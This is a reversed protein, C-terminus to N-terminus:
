IVDGLEVGPRVLWLIFGPVCDYEGWLVTCSRGGVTLIYLWRLTSVRCLLVLIASGNSPYVFFICFWPALFPYSFLMIFGKYTLRSLTTISLRVCTVHFRIRVPLSYGVCRLYGLFIIFLSLKYGRCGEMSERTEMYSGGMGCVLVSCAGFITHRSVRIFVRYIVRLMCIFIVQGERSTARISCRMTLCIILRVGGKFIAVRKVKVIGALKRLGCLFRALRIRCRTAGASITIVNRILQKMAILFAYILFGRISYYSRGLGKSFYSHCVKGRIAYSVGIAGQLM